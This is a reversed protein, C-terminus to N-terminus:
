NLFLSIKQNKNFITGAALSQNAVRGRGVAVVQLGMNELLY